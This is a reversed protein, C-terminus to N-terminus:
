REHENVKVKDYSVFTKNGERVFFGFKGKIVIEEELDEFYLNATDIPSGKKSLSTTIHPVRLNGNEDTNQFYNKLEDPLSIKFGSNKYDWGYAELKIDIEKGIVDNFLSADKPMHKFTCHYNNPKRDLHVKEKSFIQEVVNEDEFFIGFYEVM